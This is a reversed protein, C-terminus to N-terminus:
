RRFDKNLLIRPSVNGSRPSSSFEDKRMNRMEEIERKKREKHRKRSEHRRADSENQTM